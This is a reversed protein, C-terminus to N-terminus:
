ASRRARMLGLVALGALFLGLTGPEPVSGVVSVDDFYWAAPDSRFTFELVASSTSAVVNYTFETYDFPAADTLSALLNGGFSVSFFNPTNPSNFAGALNKMWFDITYSAGPSTAITQSLTGPTTVEGFAAGFNGSRTYFGGVDALITNGGLTWGTFDGTEFGPNVVLNAEAPGTSLLAALLGIAIAHGPRLFNKRFDSQPKQM